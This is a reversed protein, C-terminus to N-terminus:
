TLVCVHVHLSLENGHICRGCFIVMLVLIRNPLVSFCVHFRQNEGRLKFPIKNM